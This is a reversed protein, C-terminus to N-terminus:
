RLRMAPDGLLIWSRRVDPDATALKARMIAEGITMGGFLRGFLDIDMASQGNPATFGSSAWVAIAGGPSKMLSEGLSEIHTDHFFGNMCTM